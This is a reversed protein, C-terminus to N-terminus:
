AFTMSQLQAQIQQCRDIVMDCEGMVRTAQEQSHIHLCAIQPDFDIAALRQIPRLFTVGNPNPEPSKGGRGPEPGIAERVM